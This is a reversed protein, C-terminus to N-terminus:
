ENNDELKQGDPYIVSLCYFDEDFVTHLLHEVDELTVQEIAQYCDFIDGGDFIFDIMNNAIEETSDFGKIYEALM